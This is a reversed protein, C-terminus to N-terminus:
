ITRKPAFNLTKEAEFMHEKKSTVTSRTTVTTVAYYGYHGRLSRPSRSTVAFHSRLSWSTVAFCGCSCLQNFRLPLKPAFNLRKEGKLVMRSKANHRRERNNRFESGRTRVGGLVIHSLADFDMIRGPTFVAFVAASCLGLRRVCVSLIQAFSGPWAVRGHHLFSVAPEPLTRGPM